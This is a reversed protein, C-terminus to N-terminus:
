ESVGCTCMFASVCAYVHVCLCERVCVGELRLSVDLTRDGCGRIGAHLHFRHTYTHMYTYTYAHIYAHMHIYTCRYKVVEHRLINSLDGDVGSGVECACLRVTDSLYARGCFIVHESVCVRGCVWARARM